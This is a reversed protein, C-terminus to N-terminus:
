PKRPSKPPAMEAPIGQPTTQPAVQKTPEQKVPDQKPNVPQQPVVPQVTQPTGQKVPDQKPNGSQQPAVPQAAQPQVPAPTASVLAAKQAVLYDELNKKIQVVKYNENSIVVAPEAVKYAKNEKMVTIISEAYAEQKLGHIALFNDKETYVDFTYSLKNVNESVIFKKIKEELDKTSKDDIKGVKYLIKWNKAEAFSFNMKELLPIQNTLIEQADKGEESTPYNDAVFQMANKYADLGKLKGLINARLLEFKPVIEEGAYQLILEDLKGLVEVYQEEQYLKYWKDYVEEPTANSSASGV